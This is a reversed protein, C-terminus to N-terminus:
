LLRWLELGLADGALEPKTMRPRDSIARQLASYLVGSVQAVDFGVLLHAADLQRLESIPELQKEAWGLVRGIQPFKGM